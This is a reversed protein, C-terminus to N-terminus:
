SMRARQHFELAILALCQRHEPAKKFAHALGVVGHRAELFDRLVQAEPTVLTFVAREGRHRLHGIGAQAQRGTAALSNEARVTHLEDSLAKEFAVKRHRQPEHGRVSDTGLRHLGELTRAVGVPPHQIVGELARTRTNSM